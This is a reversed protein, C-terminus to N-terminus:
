SKTLRSLRSLVLCEGTNAVYQICSARFATMNMPSTWAKPRTPLSFREPSAAYPIGLFKNVPGIAGPLSTAAGYIPGSDITATPHAACTGLVACPLIALRLALTKMNDFLVAQKGVVRWISEDCCRILAKKYWSADRVGDHSKLSQWTWPELRQYLHGDLENIEGSVEAHCRRGPLSVGACPHVVVIAATSLPVVPPLAFLIM